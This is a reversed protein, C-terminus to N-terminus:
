PMGRKRRLAHALREEFRPAWGYWGVLKAALTAGTDWEYANFRGWGFPDSRPDVSEAETTLACSVGTQRSAALLDETVFGLARRGFPFAFTVAGTGVMERVADVSLQLDERFETPRNRFDAHTHTHAGIEMLGSASMERCQSVTLPRYTEDPIARQHAIGWADFPFPHDRDLFATNVFVTAPISLDRLAPWARTYVTQFGDDFTVVFTKPPVPVGQAHCALIQSLSQAVFGRSLLGALQERFRLPSVNITPPPVGRVPNAIRHYVLIGLTNASRNGFWGNLGVAALGAARKGVDAALGRLRGRLGPRPTAPREATLTNPKINLEQHM